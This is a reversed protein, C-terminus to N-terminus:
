AEDVIRLVFQGLPQKAAAVGRYNGETSSTAVPRADVHEVLHLQELPQHVESVGLRQDAM